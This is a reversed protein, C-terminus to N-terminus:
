VRQFEMHIAIVTLQVLPVGWWYLLDGNGRYSRRKILKRDRFSCSQGELAGLRHTSLEGKPCSTVPDTMQYQLMVMENQVSLGPPVGFSAIQSM